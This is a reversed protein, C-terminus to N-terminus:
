QALGAVKAPDPFHLTGRALQDANQAALDRAVARVYAALRSADGSNASYFNRALAEALAGDAGSALAARYAKARGYYAEGLERMKKPVSLDGVGMERLNHDMDQWFRDFLEQGLEALAPEAGIRELVLMVHLAILDFRGNVTDAVTYERYFCPTRAQAVITGYLAQITGPRAHRRFLPFRM